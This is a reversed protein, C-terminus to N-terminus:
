KSSEHTYRTSRTVRPTSVRIQSYRAIYIVAMMMMMMMMAMMVVVMLIVVMMM